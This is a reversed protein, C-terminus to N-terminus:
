ESEMAQRLELYERDKREEATLVSVTLGSVVLLHKEDIRDGVYALIRHRVREVVDASTPEDMTVVLTDGPKLNLRAVDRLEITDLDDADAACTM